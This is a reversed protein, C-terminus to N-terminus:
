NMKKLAKLILNNNSKINFNNEILEIKDQNDEIYVVM